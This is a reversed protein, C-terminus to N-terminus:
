RDEELAPPLKADPHAARFRSLPLRALTNGDADLYIILPEAPVNDEAREPAAGACADSERGCPNVSPTGGDKNVAATSLGALASALLLSSIAKAM